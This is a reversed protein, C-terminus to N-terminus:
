DRKEDYELAACPLIAVSVIIEPSHTFLEKFVIRDLQLEEPRLVIWEPFETKGRVHYVKLFQYLDSM